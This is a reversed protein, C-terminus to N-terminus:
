KILVMKKTQSFSATKFTYYYIGSPYDRGDFEVEYTGPQLQENVLLATERGLIDIYYAKYVCGTRRRRKGRELPSNPIRNKNVPQISKSLKM